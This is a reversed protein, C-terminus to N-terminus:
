KRLLAFKSTVVKGNSEVVVFYVGSAAAQGRSTRGDWRFVNMGPLISVSQQTTRSVLEMASNFISLTGFNANTMISLITQGDNLFPNPFAQGQALGSLAASGGSMGWVKWNGPDAFTSRMWIADTIRQYSDDPPSGTLFISYQMQQPQQSLADAVDVNSAIVAATDSGAGVEYYRSAMPPLTADIERIASGPPDISATAISPYQGALPYYSGSRRRHGTYYNWLTWEAFALRLSSGSARLAADNALLPGESQIYEWIHRMMDQGFKASLYTGWICRSYMIIDNSTFPTSPNQFHGWSSRLYNLYDPVGPYIVSEMWTSTLEHFYVESSWYGYNGLQIAHHFEHAITVRLAPLGKDSDPSVFGFSNHITMYSTFKGGDGKSDLPTEPTTEGYENGLNVVYIDYEPGGGESGDGPPALYGLEIIEKRFVDHAISLASDAYADASGAIPAHNGDLLVCMNAGATDYHVTFGDASKKKQLEQRMLLQAGLTRIDGRPSTRSRAASGMLPFGCKVTGEATATDGLLARFSARQAAAQSQSRLEAARAPLACLMAATALSLAFTLTRKM